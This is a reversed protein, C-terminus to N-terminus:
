GSRIGQATFRSTSDHALVGYRDSAVHWMVPTEGKSHHVLTICSRGSDTDLPSVHYPSTAAALRNPM